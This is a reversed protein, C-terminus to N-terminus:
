ASLDLQHGCSVRTRKRDRMRRAVMATSTWPQRVLLRKECSIQSGVPWARRAWDAPMKGAVAAMRRSRTGHSNVRRAVAASMRNLIPLADHLSLLSQEDGLR